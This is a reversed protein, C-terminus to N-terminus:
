LSIFSGTKVSIGFSNALLFADLKVSNPFLFKSISCLMFDINLDM